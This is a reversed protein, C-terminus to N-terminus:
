RRSALAERARRRFDGDQSLAEIMHLLATTEAIDVDIFSQLLDVGDPFGEQEQALMPILPAATVWFASRSPSPRTRCALRTSPHARRPPRKM